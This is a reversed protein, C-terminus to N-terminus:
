SVRELTQDTPRYEPRVADDGRGRRDQKDDDPEYKGLELTRKESTESTKTLAKTIMKKCRTKTGFGYYMSMKRERGRGRVCVHDGYVIAGHLRATRNNSAQNRHRWVRETIKAYSLFAASNYVM